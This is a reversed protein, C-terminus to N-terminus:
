QKKSKSDIYDDVLMEMAKGYKGAVRQVDKNQAVDAMKAGVIIILTQERSPIFAAAFVCSAAVLALRNRVGMCREYNESLEDHSVGGFMWFGLAGAM